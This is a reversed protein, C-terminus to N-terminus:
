TYFFVTQVRDFRGAALDEPSIWIRYFHEGWGPPLDRVDEAVMPDGMMFLFLTGQRPFEPYTLTKDGLDLARPLSALAVQAIFHLPQDFLGDRPWDM